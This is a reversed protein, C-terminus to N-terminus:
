PWMPVMATQGEPQELLVSILTACININILMSISTTVSLFLPSFSVAEETCSLGGKPDRLFASAPAIACVQTIALLLVSFSAQSNYGTAAVLFGPYLPLPNDSSGGQLTMCTPDSKNSRKRLKTRYTERLPSVLTLTQYYRYLYEPAM